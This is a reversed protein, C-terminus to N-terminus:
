CGIEDRCRFFDAQDFFYRFECQCGNGSLQQVPLAPFNRHYWDGQIHRGFIKICRIKSLRDQMDDSFHAQRGGKVFQFYCLAAEDLIHVLDFGVQHFDAIKPTVMEM